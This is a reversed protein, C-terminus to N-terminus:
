GEMQSMIQFKTKEKIDSTDKTATYLIKFNQNEIKGCKGLIVQGNPIDQEQMLDQCLSPNASNQLLFGKREWVQDTNGGWPRAMLYRGAENGEFEPSLVFRQDQLLRITNTIPEFFFVERWDGRAKRMRIKYMNGDGSLRDAIYYVRNGDM